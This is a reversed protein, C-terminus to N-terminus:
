FSSQYQEFVTGGRIVKLKKKKKDGRGAASCVSRSDQKADNGEGPRAVAVLDEELALIKARGKKQNMGGLRCNKKKKGQRV